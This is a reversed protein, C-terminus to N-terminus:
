QGSASPVEVRYFHFDPMLPIVQLTEFGYAEPPSTFYLRRPGKEAIINMMHDKSPLVYSVEINDLDGAVYKAYFLTNAVSWKAFILSGAPAEEEVRRALTRGDDNSAELHQFYVSANAGAVWGLRGPTVAFQMYPLLVVLVFIVITVALRGHPRRNGFARLRAVGVGALVTFLILAPLSYVDRTVGDGVVLALFVVPLAAVLILVAVRRKVRWTFVFGMAALLSAVIPLEFSFVNRSWMVLRSAFEGPSPLLPGLRGVFMQFRVRELFSDFGAPDHGEAAYLYRGYNNYWNMPTALRDTLYTYLYLSFPVLFVLVGAALLSPPIHRRLEARHWVAALGLAPAIAINLQHHSILLGLTFMLLLWDRGTHTVLWRAGAALMLVFFFANMAYVEAVVANRWFTMSLGLVIAAIAAAATGATINVVFLFLLAITASAFLISLFTVRFAPEGAPVLALGRTAVSWLPYPQHPVGGIVGITQFEAADDHHLIVTRSATLIYLGLFSLSLAIALLTQKSM